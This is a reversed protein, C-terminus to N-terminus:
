SFTSSRQDFVRNNIDHDIIDQNLLQTAHLVPRFSINSVQAQGRILVADAVVPVILDLNLNELPRLDYRGWHGERDGEVWGM